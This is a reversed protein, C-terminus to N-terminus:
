LEFCQQHDPVSCSFALERTLREALAAAAAPEGHVIFTRKPPPTAGGLWRLLEDADAHGSLGTLETVTARVPVDEGHMRLKTAGDKLLRGRTGAAQYGALVVFNKPDPLLRRLHHLVRGGALMGSSSLIVRPGKLANLQLSEERTKHLYVGHGFLTRGGKELEIEELGDEEAYRRYISTADCAMPSDLHIAMEPAAGSEMAQRLLFIMQQARGVAFAPILITSARADAEKLLQALKRGAGEPPHTRDGYTSEVVLVDCAGFAEPDPVLPADYCGVDGSFLFRLPSSRDAIEVDVLASGLIHGAHRLHTRVKPVVDFWQDYPTCRLLRLTAEADKVTYLPLAPRHRSFGKRNAYDADEEQIHASDRLLLDVLEATAPTAHIPGRFGLSALRPLWGSHDIHAHTLVVADIRSPAFGPDAWNRERLEKVGQFMGCDVLLRAGEVELLFRSGTVTGAAGQFCLSSMAGMISSPVLRDARRVAVKQRSTALLASTWYETGRWNRVPRTAFRRRLTSGGTGKSLM